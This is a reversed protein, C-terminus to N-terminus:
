QHSHFGQSSGRGAATVHRLQTRAWQPAVVSTWLEQYDSRTRDSVSIGHVWEGYVSAITASGGKPDTWQGDRIKALQAAEWAKAQGKTEFGSKTFQKAGVRYRVKFNRDGLKQVSM